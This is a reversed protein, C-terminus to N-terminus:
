VGLVDVATKFAARWNTGRRADLFDMYSVLRDAHPHYEEYHNAIYALVTPSYESPNKQLWDALKDKIAKNAFKISLTYPEEIFRRHVRKNTKIGLDRAWEDMEGMYFATLPTICTSTMLRINPPMDALLRKLNGEIRSFKGPYRAVDYQERIADVSVRLDIQKFHRWQSIIRPNLATLNTDIEMVINEAYGEDVLEALVRDHAPVIMPEGGTFYLHRLTPKIDNFKSWWIDNEWWALGQADDGIRPADPLISITKGAFKITDKGTYAAFDANWKDSYWPGCVICQLNCLVGFRLDLGIPQKEHVVPGPKTTWEPIRTGVEFTKYTRMSNGGPLQDRDYCCSCMTPATNAQHMQRLAKHCNSNMAEAFGHTLVNMPVGNADRCLGQEHAHDNILSCVRYDGNPSIMIENHPMSCMNNGPEGHTAIPNIPIVTTM